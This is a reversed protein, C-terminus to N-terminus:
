MYVWQCYCFLFWEPFGLMCRTWDYLNGLANKFCSKENIEELAWSDGTFVCRLDANTVSSQACTTSVSLLFILKLEWLVSNSTYFTVLHLRKSLPSPVLDKDEKGRQVELSLLPLEPAQSEGPFLSSDSTDAVPYVYWV